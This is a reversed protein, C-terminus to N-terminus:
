LWMARVSYFVGNGVTVIRTNKNAAAPVHKGFRQRSIPETVSKNIRRDCLLPVTCAANGLLLQARWLMTV